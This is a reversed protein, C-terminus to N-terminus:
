KIQDVAPWLIEKGGCGRELVSQVVIIVIATERFYGVLCAHCAASEAHAYSGGIIVAIAPDIKVNRTVSAINKIVVVAIASKGVNGVPGPHGCGSPGGASDPEVIVVVAFQIQEYGAKDIIVLCQIYEASVIDVAPIVADWAVVFRSRAMKKM